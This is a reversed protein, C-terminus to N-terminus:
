IQKKTREVADKIVEEIQEVSQVSANPTSEVIKLAKEYIDYFGVQDKLFADVLVENAANMVAPLVGGERAVNMALSLCPFTRLDPKAFHLMEHKTFDLHYSNHTRTGYLALAIPQIMSPEGLQALVSGDTFRVMSHVISEPHVLIEIKDPPLAFLHMAEILELGKNMLTASDVSIKKGMSWNPHKIADLAKMAAIEARDMGRFPGGSATLIISELEPHGLHCGLCQFIASHESDVPVILDKYKPLLLEGAAVLTEKNAICCKVGHELAYLTARLGVTGLSSVLLLDPESEQLLSVLAAANDDYVDSLQLSRASFEESIQQAMKESSHYSFSTLSLAGGSKRIVELAQRGISGTAGIICVRRM